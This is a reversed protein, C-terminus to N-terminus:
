ATEATDGYEVWGPIGDTSESYMERGESWVRRTIRLRRSELDIDLLHWGGMVALDTASGVCIVPRGGVHLAFPRHIHGHLVLDLQLSQEQLLDLLLRYDRIGHRPSDPRGDARLLGYHLALITYKSALEESSLLYRLQRLQEEGCLGSSDLMGAARSVDLLVLAVQGEALFKVYPYKGEPASLSGFWRGFLDDEVAEPTYRDHNGPIVTYKNPQNCRDGFLRALAEFESPWSMQTLDGTCLAHDVGQNDIDHLLRIIRDEVKHFDRRRGGIYYNFTGALRKGLLRGQATLPPITFHIDSFHALRFIRESSEPVRRSARENAYGEM